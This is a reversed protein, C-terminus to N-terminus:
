QLQVRTCEVWSLELKNLLFGLRDSPYGVVTSGWLLYYNAMTALYLLQKWSIASYVYQPWLNSREPWTVDDTMHVNSVGYTMERHTTRQFWAEIELLKRSIWHRIHRLPQCSRLRGRFLPWPWENKYWDIEWIRSRYSDITVKARPRVM